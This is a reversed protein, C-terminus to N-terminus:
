LAAKVCFTQACKWNLIVMLLAVPDIETRL